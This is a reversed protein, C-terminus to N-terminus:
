GSTTFLLQVYTLDISGTATFKLMLNSGPTGFTITEGNTIATWSSGGDASVEAAVSGAGTSNYLLTASTVSVVSNADYFLSSTTRTQGTTFSLVHASTDWTATGTGSFTTNYFWEKYTNNYQIINNTAFTSTPEGLLSTGIIGLTPSGIIFGDTVTRQEVMLYQPEFNVSPNQDVVTIIVRQNKNLENFLQNIKEMQKTQWNETRWIEDGITILDQPHPHSKTVEKVFSTHNEGTQPDVITVLQGVSIYGYTQTTNDAIPINEAEIFPQSYKSLFAYGAEQADAVTKKDTITIIKYTPTSSAGGYTAISAADSLVVPQPVQAGYRIYVNSENSSFILKKNEANIYFDYDTGFNPQGEVGRIQLTGGSGGVRVETDEPTYDLYFVDDPGAFTQVRVDYVTAGNVKVKNCLQEMNYKWAIPKTIDVGVVLTHGYTSYGKPSFNTLELKNDYSISYNYLEALQNMKQYDDEDNQVWREIITSTGTSVISTSDYALGANDCHAKFLESGVGAETDINIDWSRIRASKIAEILMGKASIEIKGVQPSLQTIIGRFVYDEEVSVFGRKILVSMGVRPTIIDNLSPSFMMNVQPIAEKYQENCVWSLCASTVDVGDIFEQRLM